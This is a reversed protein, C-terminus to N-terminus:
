TAQQFEALVQEVENPLDLRLFFNSPYVAAEGEEDIIRVYGSATYRTQYIKCPILLKEDDTKVCLAYGEEPSTTPNSM